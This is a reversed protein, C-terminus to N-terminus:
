KSRHDSISTKEYCTGKNCMVQGIGLRKYMFQSIPHRYRAVFLYVLHALQKIIPFQLPAVFLGKGVITWARHTVDLGLLLQGQFQGHLIEMAKNFNINPYLKTFDKQHLNCLEIQNHTDYKKLKIMELSCLPCHGDYFIVLKDNFDAHEKM